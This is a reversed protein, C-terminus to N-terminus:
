RFLGARKRVTEVFWSHQDPSIVVCRDPWRLVVAHAADTVYARFVGLHRSRFKGNISGLGGNGGIKHMGRLAERDPMVSQLGILPFRVTKLPLQVQLEEGVVRYRQIRATFWIAAVIMPAVGSVVFAPWEPPHHKGLILVPGVVAMVAVAPLLTIMRVRTGVSAPAFDADPIFRAQPM